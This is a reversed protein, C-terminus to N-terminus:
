KGHHATKLGKHHSGSLVVILILAASVGLIAYKYKDLFGRSGSPTDKTTPAQATVTVEPLSNTDAFLSIGSSLNHVPTVVSKFGISSVTAESGDPDSVDVSFNGDSDAVTGEGTPQGDKSIAITAAPIPNGTLAEFVKGKITAM